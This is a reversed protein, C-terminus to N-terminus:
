GPGGLITIWLNFQGVEGKFGDGVRVQDALMGPDKEYGRVLDLMRGDYGVLPGM